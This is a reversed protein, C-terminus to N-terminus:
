LSGFLSVSFFILAATKVVRAVIALLAFKKFDMRLAGVVIMIPDGVFPIWPAALLVLSGYKDLLKQAEREKKPERKVLFNHLGKLGIYYNSVAGIFGGIVAVIFVSYSNFFKAALLISPESPLPLISASLITNLFLGLLGLQEISFVM